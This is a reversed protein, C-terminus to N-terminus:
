TSRLSVGGRLPVLASGAFGSFPRVTHSAKGMPGNGACAAEPVGIDVKPRNRKARPDKVDNLVVRHKANLRFVNPAVAAAM